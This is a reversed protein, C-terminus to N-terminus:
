GLAGSKAKLFGDMVEKLSLDTWKALVKLRRLRTRFDEEV